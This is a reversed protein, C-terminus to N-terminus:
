ICINKLILGKAPVNYLHNSPNKKNLIEKIFDVSYDKTGATLAAGVIRRIMYRLFANGEIEIKFIGDSVKILECRYITRIKSYKENDSCFSSFDYTGIFIKLVDSVKLLDCKYFYHYIYRAEFPNLKRFSFFYNYIKRKSYYRPSFKGDCVELNKILIDKPLHNNLTKELRKENCFNPLFLKIIQGESHVGADTRSAGFIRKDIKWIDFIAKEITGQITKKDKQAQWGFYDTGDYLCIARYSNITKEFDKM